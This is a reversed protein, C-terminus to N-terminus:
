LSCLYRFAWFTLYAEVLLPISQIVQQRKYVDLHTYSVPNDSYPKTAQLKLGAVTPSGDLHVYIDISEKKYWGSFDTILPYFAGHNCPITTDHYRSVM